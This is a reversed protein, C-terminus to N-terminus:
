EFMSEKRRPPTDIHNLTYKYLSYLYIKEKEYLKM